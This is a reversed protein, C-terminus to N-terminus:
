NSLHYSIFKIKKLQDFLTGIYMELFLFYRLIWFQDGNTEVHDLHPSLSSWLNTIWMDCRRYIGRAEECWAVMLACLVMSQWGWMNFSKWDYWCQRRKSIRYEIHIVLRQDGNDPGRSWTSVFPSWNQIRRYKRKRSIDM